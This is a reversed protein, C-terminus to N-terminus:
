YKLEFTKLVNGTEANRVITDNEVNFVKDGTDKYIVAALEMNREPPVTLSIRLKKYAGAELLESTGVAPGLEEGESAHIVVFGDKFLVADTIIITQNPRQSSVDVMSVTDQNKMFLYATTLLLLSVVIAIIITIVIHKTKQTYM